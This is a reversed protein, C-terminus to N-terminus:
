LDASVLNEDRPVFIEGNFVFIEGRLVINEDSSASIGDV